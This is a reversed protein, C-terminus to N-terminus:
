RTSLIRYDRAYCSELNRRSDCEQRSDDGLSSPYLTSLAYSRSRPIHGRLLGRLSTWVSGSTLVDSSGDADMVGGRGGERGKGERGKGERGKGETDERLRFVM